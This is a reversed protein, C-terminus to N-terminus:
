FSEASTYPQRASYGLQSLCRYPGKAHNSTRKQVQAGKSRTYGTVRSHQRETSTDLTCSGPQLNGGVCSLRSIVMVEECRDRATPPSCRHRVDILATTCPRLTRGPRVDVGKRFTAHRGDRARRTFVTTSAIERHLEKLEGRSM